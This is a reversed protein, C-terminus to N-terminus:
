SPYVGLYFSEPPTIGSKLYHQDILWKESGTVEKELGPYKRSDTHCQNREEPWIAGTLFKQHSIGSSLSSESALKLKLPSFDLRSQFFFQSLHETVWKKQCSSSVM